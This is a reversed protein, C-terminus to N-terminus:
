LVQRIPLLLLLLLLDMLRWEKMDSPVSEEASALSGGPSESSSASSTFSIGFLVDEPLSDLGVPLSCGKVGITFRSINYQRTLRAKLCVSSCCTFKSLLKFLSYPRRLLPSTLFRQLDPLAHRHGKDETCINAFSNAPCNCTSSLM